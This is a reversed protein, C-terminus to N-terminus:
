CQTSDSTTLFEAWYNLINKFAKNVKDYLFCAHGAQTAMPWNILANIPFGVLASSSYMPPYQMIFNLLVIFTQWNPIIIGEGDTKQQWFMQHFFMNVEPDNLILKYLEVVPPHLNLAHIEEETVFKVLIKKGAENSSVAPPHYAMITNLLKKFENTNKSDNELKKFLDM